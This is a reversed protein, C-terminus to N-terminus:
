KPSFKNLKSYFRHHFVNPNQTTKQTVEQTKKFYFITYRVLTRSFFSTYNSVRQCSLEREFYGSKSLPYNKQCM